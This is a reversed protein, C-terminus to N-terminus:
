LKAIFFSSLSEGFFLLIEQTEPQPDFELSDNLRIWFRGSRADYDHRVSREKAIQDSLPQHDSTRTIPTSGISRHSRTKSVRADVPEAVDGSPKWLTAAHRHVTFPSRHVTSPVEESGDGNM